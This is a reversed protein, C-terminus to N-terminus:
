QTITSDQDATAEAVVDDLHQIIVADQDAVAVAESDISAVNAAVAADIPAAVNANAAVAGAIPAALDADLAVDVNLNLLDGDLVSEPTIAGASIGDPTPTTGPAPAVIDDSQDLDSVQNADATAEGSLIQEIAVDQDAMAAANSGFSLVNAGVAADIPAAINANAAVALDIPAALDLALDLNVNLDLLSVVEKSPLPTGAEAELEERTLRINSMESKSLESMVCRETQRVTPGTGRRLRGDATEPRGGIRWPALREM